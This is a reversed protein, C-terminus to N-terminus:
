IYNDSCRVFQDVGIQSYKCVSIFLTQLSIFKGYKLKIIILHSDSKYTDINELIQM